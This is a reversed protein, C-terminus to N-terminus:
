KNVLEISNIKKTILPVLLTEALSIRDDGVKKRTEERIYTLAKLADEQTENFMRLLTYVITGTRHLGAACHIYLTFQKNLLMEYLILLQDIIKKQTNANKLYPMNAGQLDIHFWLINNEDCFKKIEEPKEKISQLTLVSNMGYTLKFFKLDKFTPRGHCAIKSQTGKLTYFNLIKKISFEKNKVNKEM